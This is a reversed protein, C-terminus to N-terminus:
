KGERIKAIQEALKKLQPHDAPYGDAIKELADIQETPSMMAWTKQNIEKM